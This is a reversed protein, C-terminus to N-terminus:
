GAIAGTTSTTACARSRAASGGRPGATPEGAPILWEESTEQNQVGIVIHSDDATVGVGLFMGEDAEEYVLVDAGGRAPRRYVRAPRANEDRWVWFLWASDPSFVFAGSASEPGDPLM